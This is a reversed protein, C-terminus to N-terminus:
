RNPLFFRSPFDAAMKETTNAVRPSCGAVYSILIELELISRASGPLNRYFRYVRFASVSGPFQVGSDLLRRAYTSAENERERGRETAGVARPQQVELLQQVCEARVIRPWPSRSWRFPKGIGRGKDTTLSPKRGQSENPDWQQAGCVRKERAEEIWRKGYVSSRAFSRSTNM